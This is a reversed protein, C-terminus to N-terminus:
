DNLYYDHCFNMALPAAFVSVAVFDGVITGHIPNISLKAATAETCFDGLDATDIIKVIGSKLRDPYIVAGAFCVLKM